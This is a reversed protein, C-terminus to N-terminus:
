DPRGPRHGDRRARWQRVTRVSLVPVVVVVVLGHIVTISWGVPGEALLARQVVTIAAVAAFVLIGVALWRGSWEAPSFAHAIRDLVPEPSM